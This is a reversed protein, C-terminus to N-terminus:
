LGRYWEVQLIDDDSPKHYLMVRRNMIFDGSMQKLAAIVDQKECSAGSGFKTYCLDLSKEVM